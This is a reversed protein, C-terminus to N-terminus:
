NKIIRFTEIKGNELTTSFIYVGSVLSSVNIKGNTIKDTQLVLQGAINYVSVNKVKKNSTINLVDNVPNPYYSLDSSKIDSVDMTAADECTGSVEFLSYASALTSYQWASPGSKLATKSGGTNTSTTGWYSGSGTGVPQLWYTGETLVIPTPLDVVVEYVPYSFYTEVQTMSTPTVTNATTELNGPLGANDKYINFAINNLSGGLQLAKIKVQNITMKKGAAVVFDDAVKLTGTIDNGDELILSTNGQSCSSPTNIFDDLYTIWGNGFIPSGVWGGLYKGNPSLAYATGLLGDATNINIGNEALIDKVLVLENGLSPHYLVADRVPNGSNDLYQVYGVASGDESVSVLDANNYGALPAFEKYTGTNMNYVFANLQYNGVIIGSDSIDNAGSAASIQAVENPDIIFHIQKDPTIYAPIRRTSGFKQDDAWGAIIGDNNVSYATIAVYADDFIEQMEHTETNYYFSGFECCGKSMQGVVYKANNSMRYTTFSSESPNSGPLWGLPNWVGDKKYAPQFIYNAEDYFMAGAVNGDNTISAMQIAEPEVLSWSDTTFNYYKNSTIATGNDNVDTLITAFDTFLKFEVQAKLNSYLTIGVCIFASKLFSYHNKM